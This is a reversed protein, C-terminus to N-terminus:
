GWTIILLTAFIMPVLAVAPVYLGPLGFTLGSIIWLSVVMVLAYWINDKDGFLLDRAIWGFVPVALLLRQWLPLPKPRNNSNDALAM